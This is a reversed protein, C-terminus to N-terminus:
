EAGCDEPMAIAKEALCKIEDVKSTAWRLQVALAKVTMRLETDSSTEAAECLAHTIKDLDSSVASRINIKALATGMEKLAKEEWSM